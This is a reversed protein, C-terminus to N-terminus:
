TRKAPKLQKLVKDPPDFLGLQGKLPIYQLKKPNSLVWGVPGQFWKSKHSTVCDDLKAM